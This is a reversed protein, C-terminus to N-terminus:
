DKKLLLIDQFSLGDSRGSWTGYHIKEQIVLGYKRLVDLIYTEEYAVASEARQEYVYRWVGDGFNFQLKQKGKTALRAQEDNLLFFSALSRGDTKLLRSVEQLYNKVEAPRM